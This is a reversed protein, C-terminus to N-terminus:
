RRDVVEPNEPTITWEAQPLWLREYWYEHSVGFLTHLTHAALERDIPDVQVPPLLNTFSVWGAKNLRARATRRGLSIGNRGVVVRTVNQAMM